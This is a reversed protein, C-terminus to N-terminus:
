IMTDGRQKVNHIGHMGQPNYQLPIQGDVSGLQGRLSDQSEEVEPHSQGFKQLNSSLPVAM